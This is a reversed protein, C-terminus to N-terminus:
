RLMGGHDACSLNCVQRSEDQSHIGKLIGIERFDAFGAVDFEDSWVLWIRMITVLCRGLFWACDQREPSEQLLPTIWGFLLRLFQQRTNAIWNYDFSRGATTTATHADYIASFFEAICKLGRRV